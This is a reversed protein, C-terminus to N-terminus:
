KFISKFGMYAGTAALASKVLKRTQEVKKAKLVDQANQMKQTLLKGKTEGPIEKVVKGAERFRGLQEGIKPEAQGLAQTIVDKADRMQAKAIDSLNTVKEGEQAVKRLTQLTQSDVTRALQEPGLKAIRSVKQSFGALKKPDGIFAEFEPSSQFHLGAEEEAGILGQKAAAETERALNLKEAGREGIDVLKEKGLQAVDMAKPHTILEKAASFPKTIVEGASSMGEKALNALMARKAIGEVGMAIDPAMQVLTGAGAAIEPPVGIEGGKEAIKEGAKNMWEFPKRLGEALVAPGAAHMGLIPHGSEALKNALENSGQEVAGMAAGIPALPKSLLDTVKKSFAAAKDLKTQPQAPEDSPPTQDGGQAQAAELELLELEEAETLAM